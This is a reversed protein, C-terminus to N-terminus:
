IRLLAQHHSIVHFLIQRDSLQPHLSIQHRIRHLIFLFKWRSLTYPSSPPAAPTQVFDTPARILLWILQCQSPHSLYKLSSVPQCESSSLRKRPQEVPFHYQRFPSFRPLHRPMLAISMSFGDPRAKSRSAIYENAEPKSLGSFLGMELFIRRPHLFAGRAM